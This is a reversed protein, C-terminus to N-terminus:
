DKKEPPPAAKSKWIELNSKVSNANVELAPFARAVAQYLPICIFNYFGIQSKPKDSHERDNLPSTLGIGLEKELDGQRFFEENLVDCWKDALAFPRSVNSIDGVKLLMQMVLMRHEENTMDLGSDLTENLKKVLNFHHAMDTALILNIMITWMKTTNTVDLSHLLNYNENTLIEIIQTCHHTEMVSHEKFLIGLPTQAKENYVNNFGHHNTDHATAAILVAFLELSTLHKDVHSTSIEYSIYETVDCAHIWNHYPVDNYRSKLEYIYKFFLENEVKFTELVKFKNFLFYLLKIQREGKWDIAFFNLGSAEKQEEETLALRKPVPGIGREDENMYKVIEPEIGSPASDKLKSNELSVGAFITFSKLLEIDKDNFDGSKKNVMEVVGLIQGSSSLIPSVCLSNTTFNNGIDVSRNFRPDEYPKNCIVNEKNTAAYGAIGATMPLTLQLKGGDVIFSNLVQQNPDVLFLSASEADIAIRANHIIDTLIRQISESQSLSFAVDFFSRLQSSMDVSERYLRANVLSIGCFVNFIQIMNEDERSFTSGSQKNVMETVGIVDGKNNFIPVSLISRTRYGTELDTSSDFAPNDYADPINLVKAQKVTEGAIGKDIPIDIADDLGHQFSTILRDRKQNVLFLSCRDANTLLRGKEMIISTLRETDLQGSLVEAVELLAALGERETRGKENETEVNSYLLSNTLSMAVFPAFKQLNTEDDITYIKQTRPGRLVTAIVFRGNEETVPIILIAEDKATDIKENYNPHTKNSQCNVTIIKEIAEQVIGCEEMLEGNPEEETFRQIIGEIKDVRWIECIRCDFSNSLKSTLKPILLDMKTLHMIDLIMPEQVQKSFLFRSFLKFKYSFYQIFSEDSETFEPSSPTKVIEIVSCLRNRHDFLPFIILPADQPVIQSDIQPNYSQHSTPVRTRLIVRSYFSFGALSGSHPCLLSYTQSYLQQLSPIDTWYVVSAANYRQTFFKEAASCISTTAADIIFSDVDQDIQPIDAPPNNQPYQPTAFTGSTPSPPKVKEKFQKTAKNTNSPAKDQKFSPAVVFHAYKEFPAETTKSLPKILRPIQFRGPRTQTRM